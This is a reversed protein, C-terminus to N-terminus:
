IQVDAVKNINLLIQTLFIIHCKITKKGTTLSSLFSDIHKVVVCVLATHVDICDGVRGHFSGDKGLDVVKPLGRLLEKLLGM